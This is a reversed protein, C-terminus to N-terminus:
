GESGALSQSPKDKRRNVSCFAWRHRETEVGQFHEAIIEDVGYTLLCTLILEEGAKTLIHVYHYPEMSSVPYGGEDATGAKYVVIKDIEDKHIQDIGTGSKRIIKNTRVEFIDNKNINWYQYHLYLAPLHNVMFIFSFVMLYILDFRFYFGGGIILVSM